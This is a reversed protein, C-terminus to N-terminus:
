KVRRRVFDGYGNQSLGIKIKKIGEERDRAIEMSAELAGYYITEFINENVMKAGESEFPVNLEYFINALGQVRIEGIPRHRLNSKKTEPTPYYNYDIIKNLNYTLEKSLLKLKDYDLIPSIYKELEQFGGIHEGTDLYIQPYMDFKKDNLINYSIDNIDCLKKAADCYICRKIYINISIGEKKKM